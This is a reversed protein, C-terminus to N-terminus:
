KELKKEEEKNIDTEGKSAKKFERIGEGIGKMVEPIKKGGFLLVAILLIVVIHWPSELILIIFLNM